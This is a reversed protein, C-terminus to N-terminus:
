NNILTIKFIPHTTQVSITDNPFSGNKFIKDGVKQPIGNVMMIMLLM